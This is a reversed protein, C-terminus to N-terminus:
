TLPLYFISILIMLSPRREIFAVWVRALLVPGGVLFVAPCWVFAPSPVHCFVSNVVASTNLKVVKGDGHKFTSNQQIRNLPAHVTAQV